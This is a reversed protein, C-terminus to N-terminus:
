VTITKDEDYSRQTADLLSLAREPEPTFGPTDRCMEVMIGNPDLAAKIARMIQEDPIDAMIKADSHDRPQVSMDPTNVGKGNRGLGHCQVCYTEYNKIAKAYQEDAAAASGYAAITLCASAAWLIPLKLLRVM